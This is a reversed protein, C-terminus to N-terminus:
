CIKHKIERLLALLADDTAGYVIAAFNVKDVTKISDLNGTTYVEDYTLSYMVADDGSTVASKIHGIVGEKFEIYSRLLNM